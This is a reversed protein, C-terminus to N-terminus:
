LLVIRNEVECWQAVGRLVVGRSKMAIRRLGSRWEVERCTVAICALGSSSKAEACQM